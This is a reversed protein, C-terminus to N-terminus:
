HFINYFFRETYYQTISEYPYGHLFGHGLYYARIMICTRDNASKRMENYITDSNIQPVLTDINGQLLICPASNSNILYSPTYYLYESNSSPTGNIAGRYLPHVNYFYDSANNPPFYLCLGSVKIASSFNTGFYSNNYGFGAIGALHAGASQGYFITQSLDAGYNYNNAIYHTFNGIDEVMDRIGYDGVLYSPAIALSISNDIGAEAMTDLVSFDRLRYDIAFCIYGQSAFRKMALADMDRTGTIWGGGHLYIITRNNGITPVPTKPYYVDYYLQYEPTNVYSINSKVIYNNPEDGRLYIESLVFPDNLFKSSDVGNPFSNWDEGFVNNFQADADIISNPFFMFSSSFFGTIILGFITTAYFIIRFKSNLKSFEHFTRIFLLLSSISLFLFGLPIQSFILGAGLGIVSQPVLFISLIGISLIILSCFTILILFIKIYKTIKGRKRTNRLKEESLVMIFIENEYNKLIILALFTFFLFYLLIGIFDIFFAVASFCLLGYNVINIKMGRSNSRNLIRRQLFIYIFNMIIAFTILVGFINGIISIIQYYNEIITCFLMLSNLFLLLKTINKFNGSELMLNYIKKM